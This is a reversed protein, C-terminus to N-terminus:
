KDDDSDQSLEPLADTNKTLWELKHLQEIMRLFVLDRALRWDMRADNEAVEFVDVYSDFDILTDQGRKLQSLAARLILTRFVQYRQERFNTFFYRDNQEKVHQAFRDGLVRIKDIQQKDM